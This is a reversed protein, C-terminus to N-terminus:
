VSQMISMNFLPLTFPAIDYRVKASVHHFRCRLDSSTPSFFFSDSFSLLVCLPTALLGARRVLQHSYLLPPIFVQCVSSQLLFLEAVTFPLERTSESEKEREARRKEERRRRTGGRPRRERGALWDHAAFLESKKEKGTM